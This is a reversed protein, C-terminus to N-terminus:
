GKQTNPLLGPCLGLEWSATPPQQPARSRLCFGGGPVPEVGRLQDRWMESGLESHSPLRVELVGHRGSLRTGLSWDYVAKGGWSHRGHRLKGLQLVTLSPGPGPPLLLGGM